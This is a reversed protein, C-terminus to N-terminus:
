FFFFFLGFCFGFLFCVFLDKWFNYNLYSKALKMQLEECIVFLVSQLSM